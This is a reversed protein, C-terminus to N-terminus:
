IVDYMFGFDGYRLHGAGFYLGDLAKLFDGLNSIIDIPTVDVKVKNGFVGLDGSFGPIWVYLPVFDFQLQAEPPVEYQETPAPAPIDAATARDVSAMGFTSAVFFACLILFNRM